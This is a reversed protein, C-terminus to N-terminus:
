KKREKKCRVEFRVPMQPRSDDDAIVEMKRIKSRLFKCAVVCDCMRELEVGELGGRDARSCM